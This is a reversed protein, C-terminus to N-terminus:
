PKNKYETFVNSIKFITEQNRKGDWKLANNYRKNGGYRQFHIILVMSLDKMTM